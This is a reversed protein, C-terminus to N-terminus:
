AVKGDRQLGERIWKRLCESRQGAPMESLAQWIDPEVRLTIRKDFEGLGAAQVYQNKGLPNRVIGKPAGKQKAM